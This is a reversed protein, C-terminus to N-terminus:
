RQLFRRNYRRHIPGHLMHFATRPQILSHRNRIEQIRFTFTCGDVQVASTLDRSRKLHDFFSHGGAATEEARRRMAAPDIQKKQEELRIKKDAVIEDLIM